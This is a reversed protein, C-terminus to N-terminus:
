ELEIYSQAAVERFFNNSEIKFKNVINNLTSVDWDIPVTFVDDSDDTFEWKYRIIAYGGTSNKITIEKLVNWGKTIVGSM